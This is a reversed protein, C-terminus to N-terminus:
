VVVWLTIVVDMAKWHGKLLNVKSEIEGHGERCSRIRTNIKLKMLRKHKGNSLFVLKWMDCEFLEVIKIIGREWVIFISLPYRDWSYQYQLSIYPLCTERISMFSLCRGHRTNKIWQRWVVISRRLYSFAKNWHIKFSWSLSVILFRRNSKWNRFEWRPTTMSVFQHQRKWQVRQM